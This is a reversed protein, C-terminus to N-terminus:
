WTSLVDFEFVKGSPLVPIEYVSSELYSDDLPVSNFTQHRQQASPEEQSGTSDVENDLATLRDDDDDDHRGFTNESISASSGV